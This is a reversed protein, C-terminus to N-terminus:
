GLSRPITESANQNVEIHVRNMKKCTNRWEHGHALYIRGDTHFCDRPSSGVVFPYPNDVLRQYREFFDLLDDPDALRLQVLEERIPRELRDRDAAATENGRM